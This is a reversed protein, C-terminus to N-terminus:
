PRSDYRDYVHASAAYFRLEGLELGLGGALMRATEALVRVDVPLKGALDLSRAYCFTHLRRDRVLYQVLPLCFLEEGAASLEGFYAVARRSGPDARLVAELRPLHLLIGAFEPNEQDVCGWVEALDFVLELGRLERTAGFPSDVAEGERVVRDITEFILELGAV